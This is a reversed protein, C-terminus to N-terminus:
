VTLGIGEPKGQPYNAAKYLMEGDILIFESSTFDFGEMSIFGIKRAKFSEISCIKEAEQIALSRSMKGKLLKVEFVDYGNVYELVVDFEGSLHRKRDNYWYSGIDIIGELKGSHALRGFYEKAIDEFRFSLYADISPSVLAAYVAQAGIHEIRSRNPHVYSFYFRFLNDHIAYFSRRPNDKENIPCIKVVADNASLKALWHSLNGTNKQDFVDNLEGYSRKGNGIRSMISLVPGIKSFEKILTNEVLARVKGRPDILLKIINEELSIDTDICELAAPSGGFVSYCAAKERNTWPVLFSAAEYYDFEEVKLISCFRGFLPNSADLLEKMISIASGSLIVRVNTDKLSDIIKQMMSDTQLAGYADKLENYEDLVVAIPSDSGALFRFIDPFSDFRGWQGGLSAEVERTFQLCNSEYSESTCQFYVVKGAYDGLAKNILTTKGVRRKGYVLMAHGQSSLFDHIIRLEEERHYFM